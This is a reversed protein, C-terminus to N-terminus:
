QRIYRPFCLVVYALMIILSSWQIQANPLSLVEITIEEFNSIGAPASGYIFSGYNFISYYQSGIAICVVFKCFAYFKNKSYRFLKRTVYILILSFTWFLTLTIM